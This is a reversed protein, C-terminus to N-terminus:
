LICKLCSYSSVFRVLKKLNPVDDGDRLYLWCHDVRVPRNEKQNKHCKAVSENDDSDFDHTDECEDCLSQGNGDTVRPEVRKSIGDLDLTEDNIYSTCHQANKWEIKQM